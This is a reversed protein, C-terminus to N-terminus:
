NKCVYGRLIEAIEDTANRYKTRGCRQVITQSKGDLSLVSEYLSLPTMNEEFLLAILGNNAFYEANDVQDGRSNGKPLPIALTPIALSILEFLTNAGARSIALDTVAFLEGIDDAFEIATYGRLRSKIGKGRGCVHLLNYRNVLKYACKEICDNIAKSGQSGGIVLLTKKNEDLGFKLRIAKQCKAQVGM